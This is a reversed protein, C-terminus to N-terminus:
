DRHIDKVVLIRAQADTMSPHATVEFRWDAQAINIEDQYAKGKPLIASGTTRMHRLIHPFLESLSSLARASVIDARQPEAQEVREAIVTASLSLERVATRLFAAKRQDSEIMTFLTHPSKEAAIAALVIGPFGGGSGIDLWTKPQSPNLGFLQASDVIHREWIDSITSKAILNIRPNWKLTLDVFHELKEITERSVDLNAINKMALGSIKPNKAAEAM